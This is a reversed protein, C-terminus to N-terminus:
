IDFYEPGTVIEMEASTRSVVRDSPDVVIQIGQLVSTVM